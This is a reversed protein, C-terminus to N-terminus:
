MINLFKIHVYVQLIQVEFLQGNPHRMTELGSKEMGNEVLIKEYKEM